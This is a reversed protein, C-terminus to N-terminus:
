TDDFETFVHVQVMALEGASATELAIAGVRQNVGFGGVASKVGGGTSDSKLYDGAVCGGTGLFLLCCQGATFVQLNEGAIAAQVPDTTVEPIPATRGGHQSIGFAKGNTGCELVSNNDATDIKVFRSVRITGNARMMLPQAASM